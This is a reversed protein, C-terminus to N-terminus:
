YEDIHHLFRRFVAFDAAILEDGGQNPADDDTRRIMPADDDSAAAAPGVGALPGAFQPPTAKSAAGTKWEVECGKLFQIDLLILEALDKPWSKQKMRREFEMNLKDYREIMSKTFKCSLDENYNKSSQASRPAGTHSALIRPVSMDAEAEVPDLRPSERLMFLRHAFEKQYIKFQKFKLQDFTSSKDAESNTKDPQAIYYKCEDHLSIM